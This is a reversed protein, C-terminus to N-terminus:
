VQDQKVVAALSAVGRSSLIEDLALQIQTVFPCTVDGKEECNEV